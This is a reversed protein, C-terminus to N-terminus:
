TRPTAEVVNATMTGTVPGGGLAADMAAAVAATLATLDGRAELEARLPSGTCYGTALGAASGAHGQLSVREVAVCRLGGDALDAVIVDPDAYGHPVAALFRPPDTPFLRELVDVLAREFDHAALEAWTNLLFTGAPELVRRVQAFAAAKVPFFMAGFQCVVMDYSGDDFPIEMADVREWSAGPVLRRGLEVMAANLDTATVSADPITTVLERTLVGTGAALELVRRPARAGARRALDAAFPRFVTPVMWREYAESM